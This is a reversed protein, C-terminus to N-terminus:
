AWPDLKVHPYKNVWINIGVNTLHTITDFDKPLLEKAIGARRAEKKVWIYHVTKGNFLCWGSATGDDLIGIRLHMGPRKLLHEIFLRYNHFYAEKNTLKFLDNGYRLSNLFPAVVLNVYEPPLCKTEYVRLSYAEPKVAELEVEQNGM